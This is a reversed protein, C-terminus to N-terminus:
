GLASSQQNAPNLPVPVYWCEPAAAMGTGQMEQLAPSAAAVKKCVKGTAVLPTYSHRFIADFYFDAGNKVTSTCIAGMFLFHAIQSFWLLYAFSMLVLSFGCHILLYVGQVARKPWMKLLSQLLDGIKGMQLVRDWLTQYGNSELYSGLVVFIWIYYIIAWWLYFGTMSEVIFGVYSLDNCAHLPVDAECVVFRSSPSWRIGYTLLLPSTHIVVSTLHPYSHFILAHNFTLVSWALPGNACLFAMRFLRASTPWVWVYLLCLLNAWYCFDWLLYHQKKRVFTWWRLFLLLTVKPTFYLFYYTPYAGIIFPTIGTNMVGLFYWRRDLRLASEAIEEETPSHIESPTAAGSAPEEEQLGLREREEQRSQLSSMQALAAVWKSQRVVAVAVAITPLFVLVQMVWMPINEPTHFPIGKIYDAVHRIEDM